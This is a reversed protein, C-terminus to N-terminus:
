PNHHRRVLDEAHDVGHRGLLARPDGLREGDDGADEEPPQMAGSRPKQPRGDSPVERPQPTSFAFKVGRKRRGFHRQGALKEHMIAQTGYSLNTLRTQLNTVQGTLAQVATRM